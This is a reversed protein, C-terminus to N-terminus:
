DTGLSARGVFVAFGAGPVMGQRGGMVLVGRAPHELLALHALGLEVLARGVREGARPLGLAPILYAWDWTALRAVARQARRFVAGLGESVGFAVFTLYGGSIGGASATLGVVPGAFDEAAFDKAPDSLFIEGSSKFHEASAGLSVPLTSVGLEFSPITVRVQEPARRLVVTVQGVGITIGADLGSSTVYSWASRKHPLAHRGLVRVIAMAVDALARGPLAGRLVLEKWDIRGIPDRPLRGPEALTEWWRERSEVWSRGDDVM